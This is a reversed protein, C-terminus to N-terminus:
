STGGGGRQGQPRGERGEGALSIFLLHTVPDTTEGKQAEPKRTQLIPTTPTHPDLIITSSPLVPSPRMWSAGTGIGSGREDM